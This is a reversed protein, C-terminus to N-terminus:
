GTLSLIYREKSAQQLAQHLLDVNVPKSIYNDMGSALYNERDAQLANATMAIIYPQEDVPFDSRIIKTAELGDMEPMQIDMLIVDYRQRRVAEITELGNAALDARYGFRELMRLAVKQNVVNDEALLIKLPYAAGIEKDFIGKQGEQGGGNAAPKGLQIITRRLQSGKIPLYILSTRRNKNKIAKRQGWPALYCIPIDTTFKTSPAFGVSKEKSLDSLTDYLVVAYGDDRKLHAPPATRMEIDVDWHQLHSRIARYILTRDTILLARKDRLWEIETEAVDSGLAVPQAIISFTFTSGAGVESEVSISGGMLEALRQSIVLGLGTGGFQRSTSKDAQSFPQFLRNLRDEAIGIGTDSVAFEIVVGNKAKIESHAPIRTSVQVVIEGAPTFKVANSLLNTLIQRVRTVDQTITHPVDKDIMYALQLGKGVATTTVLDIAEEICNELVFPTEELDLKQAEIKSFDLIDNILTLLTDGSARITQVIDTQEQDLETDLLLTTMGLVGNMPTRLEHTMSSLFTSKAQTAAEAAEKAAALEATRNDVLTELNENIYTNEIAVAAQNSFFELPMLDADSFRGSKSRNELYIAGIIRSKTILPACLISRLQMVMVSQSGAFRPDLLANRIVLSKRTEIVENLVTHSIADISSEIDSGDARRRIKYNLSDDDNLLVIYGREAGVLSIVKDMVYTLLPATKRMEAMRRSIDLLYTLLAEGSVTSREQSSTSDAEQIADNIFQDILKNKDDM